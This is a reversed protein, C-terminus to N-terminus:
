VLIRKVAEFEEVFHNHRVFPVREREGITMSISFDSWFLTCVECIVGVGVNQEFEGKENTVKFDINCNMVSPDKFREIFETTICSGQVTLVREPLYRSSSPCPSDQKVSGEDRSCNEENTLRPYSTEVAVNSHSGEGETEAGGNSLLAVRRFRIEDMTLLVPNEPTEPIETTYPNVGDAIRSVEYERNQECRICEEGELYTSSCLLCVVRKDADSAVQSTNLNVPRQFNEEDAKLQSFFTDQRQLRLYLYTTSPYLGNEKLYSEITVEGPFRIIATQTTDCIDLLMDDVSGAFASKGGPFFMATAKQKLDEVTPPESAIYAVFRNAGGNKQRVPVFVESKKDYHIWRVQIRHEKNTKRKKGRSQGRIRDLLGSLLSVTAQNPERTAAKSSTSASEGQRTIEERVTQRIIADM